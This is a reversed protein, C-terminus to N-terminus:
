PDGKTPAILDYDLRPKDPTVLLSAFGFQAAVYALGQATM